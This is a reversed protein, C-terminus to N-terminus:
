LAGANCWHIHSIAGACEQLSRGQGQLGGATSSMATGISEGSSSAINSDKLGAHCPETAFLSALVWSDSPEFFCRVFLSPWHLRWFRCHCGLLGQYPHSPVAPFAGGVSSSTAFSLAQM